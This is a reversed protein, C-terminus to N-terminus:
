LCMRILGLLVLEEVLNYLNKGVLSIGEVKVGVGIRRASSKDRIGLCMWLWGM